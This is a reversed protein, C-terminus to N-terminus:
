GELEATKEVGAVLLYGVQGQSSLGPTAGPTQEQPTRLLFASLPGSSVPPLYPQRSPILCPAETLKEYFFLFLFLYFLFLFVLFVCYLLFILVHAGQTDRSHTLVPEDM